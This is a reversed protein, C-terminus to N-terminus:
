GVGINTEYHHFLVQTGAEGYGLKEVLEYLKQAVELGPLRLGHLDAEEQALRIDKVLHRVLFGPKFDENLARPALNTLGWSGAAGGRIVDQVASPDLNSAKAVALAECWAVMGIAVAIQNSLKCRQGSGAPGLRTVSQGMQQLLPEGRHFAEDEGGVMIVLSKNRAGVDGGSVPADLAEINQERAVSSIREALRPSSTTMDILLSGSKAAAIVGGGATKGFYVQEVDSPLGLMTIVVDAANAASEPTDHWTAGRELLAEAKERTRNHVHLPHGNMILHGAMRSGMIGTGIFAISRPLLPM